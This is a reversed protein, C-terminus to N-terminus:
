HVLRPYLLKPHGLYSRYTDEQDDKAYRTFYNKDEGSVKEAM